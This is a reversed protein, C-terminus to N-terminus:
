NRIKGAHYRLLSRYVQTQRIWLSAEPSFPIRGSKVKRCSKEAFCMYLGLEKDLQNLHKTFSKQLSSTTHAHGVREILWHRIIMEELLCSYEAAVWPLKTNLRRSAPWVIQPPMAGVIDGSTVDVVFLRHDRIGYGAPM